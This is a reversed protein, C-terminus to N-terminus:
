TKKKPTYIAALAEVRADPVRAIGLRPRPRGGPPAAPAGTLLQFLTSKGVSALGIIAVKMPAHIIAPPAEPRATYYFGRM